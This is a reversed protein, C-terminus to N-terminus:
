EKFLGDLDSETVELKEKLTKRIERKAMEVTSEKEICGTIKYEIKNDGVVKKLVLLQNIVGIQASIRKQASMIFEEVSTADDLKVNGNGINFKAIAAIDNCIQNAIDLNAAVGANLKAVNPSEAVVQGEGFIYLAGKADKMMRYAYLESLAIELPVDGETGKWGEKKLRKAEKKVLSPKVQKKADKFRDAFDDQGFSFSVFLIAVLFLIYKKM